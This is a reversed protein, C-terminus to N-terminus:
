KMDKLLESAKDEYFSNTHVLNLLINKALGANNTKLYCLSLYWSAHEEFIPDKGSIIKTFQTAANKYQHTETYCIGLFLKAANNAPENKLVKEFGVIAERYKNQNYLKVANIFDNGQIEESRTHFDAPMKEYYTAFLEDNSKALNNKVLLFTFTLAVLVAIVAAIRYINFKKTIYVPAPEELSKKNFYLKEAEAIREEFSSLEKDGLVTNVDKILELKGSLLPDVKLRDDVQQKETDNLDGDLYRVLLELDKM